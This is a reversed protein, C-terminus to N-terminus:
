PRPQMEFNDRNNSIWLDSPSTVPKPTAIQVQQTTVTVVKIGEEVAEASDDDISGREIKSNLGVKTSSKVYNNPAPLKQAWEATEQNINFRKYGSERRSSRRSVRNAIYDRADSAAAESLFRPFFRSITKRLTPLSACIIAINVELSSWEAAEGNDWTVDTSVSIVYLAKLRLISTLCVFAGLGFVAMLAFRQRRPLHLDHLVPMPLIFIAIDTVINLSANAFWVSYKNLCHGGAIDEKWFYSVPICMLLTSFVSWMGYVVTVAFLAIILRRISTSIFVRWYQLLISIKTLTLSLQYVPVSAWLAKYLAVQDKDSITAMHHGQKHQFEIYILVSLIISFFFSVTIVYDEAGVNHVISARTLIRLALVLFAFSLSIFSAVVDRNGRSARPDEESTDTM